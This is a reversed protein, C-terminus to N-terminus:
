QDVTGESATKLRSATSRLLLLPGSSTLPSRATMDLGVMHSPCSTAFGWGGQRGRTFIEWSSRSLAALGFGPTPKTSRLRPVHVWKFLLRTTSQGATAGGTGRLSGFRILPPHSRSQRLEPDTAPDYDPHTTDSLDRGDPAFQADDEEQRHPHLFRAFGGAM